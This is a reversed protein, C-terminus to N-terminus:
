VGNTWPANEFLLRSRRVLPTQGWQDWQDMVQMVRSLGNVHLEDSSNLARPARRTRSVVVGSPTPNVTRIAGAGGLACYAPRPLLERYSKSPPLHGRHLTEAPARERNQECKCGSKSDGTGVARRFVFIIRESTQRLPVAAIADAIWQRRRRTVRCRTSKM